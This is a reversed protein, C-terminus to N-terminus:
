SSFGNGYSNGDELKSKNLPQLSDIIKLIEDLHNPDYKRGNLNDFDIILNTQNLKVYFRVWQGDDNFYVKKGTPTTQILNCKQPHELSQDIDNRRIAAGEDELSFWLRYITCNDVFNMVKDQGKLYGGQKVEADGLTFTVTENSYAINDYGNLKAASAPYISSIYTPYYPSFNLNDVATKFNADAKVTIRRADIPHTIVPTFYLALGLCITGIVISPVRHVSIKSMLRSVGAFILYSVILGITIEIFIPAELVTTLLSIVLYNISFGLLAALINSRIAALWFVIAITACLMGAVIWPAAAFIWMSAHLIMMLGFGVFQNLSPYFQYVSYLITAILYALAVARHSALYTWLRNNKM